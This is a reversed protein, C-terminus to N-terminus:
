ACTGDRRDHIIPLLWSFAGGTCQKECRSFAVTVREGQEWVRVICNGKTQSLEVIPLTKTQSFDKLAFRCTGHKPINVTAAFANVKAETINLTLAGTLGAEDNIRCEAKVNLPRVPIPGPRGPKTTEEPTGPPTTTPPTKWPVTCAGLLLVGLLVLYRLRLAMM